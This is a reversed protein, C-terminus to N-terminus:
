DGGAAGRGVKLLGTGLAYLSFSILCLSPLLFFVFKGEFVYGARTWLRLRERKFEEVDWEREELDRKDLFVYTEAEVEEEDAAAAGKEGEAAGAGAASVAASTPGSPGVVQGRVVKVTVKRREYQAGEFYDLKEINARTLGTALTGLVSAGEEETMGPYDACRVRRRSFGELVAPRFTHLAAIAPPVDKSNYCVSYFVQPVM